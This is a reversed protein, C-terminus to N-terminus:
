GPQLLSALAKVQSMELGPSSPQLQNYRPQSVNMGWPLLSCGQPIGAAECPHLKGNGGLSLHRQCGHSLAAEGERRSGERSGVHRHAQGTGRARQGGAICSIGHAGRAM